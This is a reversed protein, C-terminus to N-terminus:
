LDLGVSANGDSVNAIGVRNPNPEYESVLQLKAERVGQSTQMEVTFSIRYAGHGLTSITTGDSDQISSYSTSGSQAGMSIKHSKISVDVYEEILAKTEDELNEDYRWVSGSFMNRLRDSNKERLCNVFEEAVKEALGDASGGSYDVEGEYGVPERRIQVSTEGSKPAIDSGNLFIGYEKEGELATKMDDAIHLFRVGRKHPSDSIDAVFYLYATKDENVVKYTAKLLEGESVAEQLDFKELGKGFYARVTEYTDTLDGMSEYAEDSFVDSFDYFSHRLEDEDAMVHLNIAEDIDCMIRAAQYTEDSEDAFLSCSCLTVVAAALLLSCFIRKYMTKM